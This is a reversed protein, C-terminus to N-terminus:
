MRAVIRTTERAWEDNQKCTQRREQEHPSRSTRCSAGLSQFWVRCCGVVGPVPEGTRTQETPEIVDKDLM